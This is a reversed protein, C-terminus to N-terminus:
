LSIAEAPKQDNIFRSTQDVCGGDKPTM